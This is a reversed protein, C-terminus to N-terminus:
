NGTGAAVLLADRVAAEFEPAWPGQGAVVYPSQEATEFTAPDTVFSQACGDVSARLREFAARNRFVYLYIRVPDAQDLGSADFGIATPILTPDDCGADGSVIREIAIQRKTFETAIGQFDAPTPAPPTTSITGCAAVALALLLAAAPVRRLRPSSPMSM